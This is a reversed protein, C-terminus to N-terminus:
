RASREWGRLKTTEEAHRKNDPDELAAVSEIAGAIYGPPLGHEIAGALVYAMYWSYPALKECIFGPDAVYTRVHLPEGTPTIVVVEADQYGYGLGEFGDLVTKKFAPIKFVVGWVEDTAVGTHFADGKSSRDKKSLKHFRLQHCPLKAITVFECPVRERLRGTCLNSGYAFYKIEQVETDCKSSASHSRVPAHITRLVCRISDFSADLAVLLVGSCLMSLIDLAETFLERGPIM